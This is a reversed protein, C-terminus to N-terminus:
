QSVEGRGQGELDKRCQELTMAAMQITELMLDSVGGGKEMRRLEELILGLQDRMTKYVRPTGRVVVDRNLMRDMLYEQKTLGSLQVRMNLNDNEEPSMRFTVVKNRMRGRSDRDMETM